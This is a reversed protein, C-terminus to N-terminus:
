IYPMNLFGVISPACFMDSDIFFGFVVEEDSLEQMTEVWRKNADIRHNYLDKITNLYKKYM